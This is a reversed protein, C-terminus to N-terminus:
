LSFYPVPFRTVCGVNQFYSHRKNGAVACVKRMGFERKQPWQPQLASSWHDRVAVRENSLILQGPLAQTSERVLLDDDHRYVDQYARTRHKSENPAFVLTLYV